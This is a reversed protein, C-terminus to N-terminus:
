SAFEDFDLDFLGFAAGRDIRELDQDASRSKLAQDRGTLDAALDGYLHRAV